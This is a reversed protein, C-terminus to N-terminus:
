SADNVMIISKIKIYIAEMYRLMEHYIYDWEKVYGSFRSAIFVLKQRTNYLHVDNKMALPMVEEVDLWKEICLQLTERCELIHILKRITWVGQSACYVFMKMTILVQCEGMIVRLLLSCRRIDHVNTSSYIWWPWIDEPMSKIYIDM